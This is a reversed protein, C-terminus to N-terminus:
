SLAAASSRFSASGAIVRSIEDAGWLDLIAFFLEYFIFTLFPYLVPLPLVYLFFFPWTESTTKKWSKELSFAEGKWEM